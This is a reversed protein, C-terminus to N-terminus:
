LSGLIGRFGCYLLLLGLDRSGLRLLLFVVLLEVEEEVTTAESYHCFEELVLEISKIGFLLQRQLLEIELQPLLIKFFTSECGGALGVHIYHHSVEDVVNESLIDELLCPRPFSLLDNM